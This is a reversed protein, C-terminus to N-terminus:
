VGSHFSVFTMSANASTSSLEDALEADVLSCVTVAEEM